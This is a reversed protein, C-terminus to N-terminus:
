ILVNCGLCKTKWGLNNYKIPKKSVNFSPDTAFNYNRTLDVGILNPIQQLKKIMEDDVHLKNSEVFM